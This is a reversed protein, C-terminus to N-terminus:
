SPIFFASPTLLEQGFNFLDHRPPPQKLQDAANGLLTCPGGVWAALRSAASKSSAAITPNTRDLTSSANDIRRKAPKSNPSSAIGTSVMIRVEVM